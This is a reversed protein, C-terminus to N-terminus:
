RPEERSAQRGQDAAAAATKAPAELQDRQDAPVDEWQAHQSLQLARIYAVIAWRDDIDIRNAYSPMAGFGHQIVDYFHGAPAQRLRDIHYSPPQRFGRLVIMGKGDGTRSHCASCHIEFREQGRRLLALRLEAPEIEAYPRTFRPVHREYTSQYVAEPIQSVLQGGEQGRYYPNDERLGGRPVAGEVPQRASLGDRFFESPELPEYRPQDYMDQHNCGALLTLFVLFNVFPLHRGARGPTEGPRTQLGTRRIPHQTLNYEKLRRNM